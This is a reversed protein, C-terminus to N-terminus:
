SKWIQGVHTKLNAVEEKYHEEPVAEYMERLDFEALLEMTKRVNDLEGGGTLSAILDRNRELSHLKAELSASSLDENGLYAALAELPIWGEDM